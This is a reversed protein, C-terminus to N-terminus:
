PSIRASTRSMNMNCQHTMRSVVCSVQDIYVLLANDICTFNPMHLLIFGCGAWTAVSHHNWGFRKRGLNRISVGQFDWASM